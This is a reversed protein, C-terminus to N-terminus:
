PKIVPVSTFDKLYQATLKALTGNSKLTALAKNVCTVLPNDKAFLLGYHEGTSPFQAVL